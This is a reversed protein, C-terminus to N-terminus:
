VPRAGVFDAVAAVIAGGAVAPLTHTAGPVAVVERPGAQTQAALAESLEAPTGFPDRAGQVVLVPGAVAALEAARSAQPRGPPHLPFALAVVGDVGPGHTRCAIRAGASRGGCFLPLGAFGARVADVCALWLPDSAPPRPGVRRGAVRWPLEVRVVAVGVGPLERALAELDPTGVQGSAGGGLVLVARPAEPAALHLRAPGGPTDVLVGTASPHM